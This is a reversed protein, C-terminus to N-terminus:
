SLSGGLIENSFHTLITSKSVPFSIYLLLTPTQFDNINNVLFKLKQNEAPHDKQSLTPSHWARSLFKLSSM